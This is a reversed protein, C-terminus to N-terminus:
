RHLQDAALDHAGAFGPLGRDFFEASALDATGNSGGIVIVTGDLLTTATAKTRSTSMAPGPTVSGAQPDYIDSTSLVNTGDSSGGVILVRGDSL